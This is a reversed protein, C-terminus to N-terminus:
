NSGALMALSLPKATVGEIRPPVTCVGCAMALAAVLTRQWRIM